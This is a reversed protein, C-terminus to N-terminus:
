QYHAAAFYHGSNCIVAAGVTGHGDINARHGASNMWGNIAQKAGLFSAPCNASGNWWCYLNEAYVSQAHQLVGGVCQKGAYKNVEVLASQSLTSSNAYGGHIQKHCEAIANSVSATGSPTADGSGPCSSV